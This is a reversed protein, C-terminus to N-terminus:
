QGMEEVNGRHDEVWKWADEWTRYVPGGEPGIYPYHVLAKLLLRSIPEPMEDSM